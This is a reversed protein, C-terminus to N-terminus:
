YHSFFKSEWYKRTMASAKLEESAHRKFDLTMKTLKSKSQTSSELLLQCGPLFLYNRGPDAPYRSWSQRRDWRWTNFNVDSWCKTGVPSESPNSRSYFSVKVYRTSQKDFQQTSCLFTIPFITTTSQSQSCRVLPRIGNAREKKRWLSTM